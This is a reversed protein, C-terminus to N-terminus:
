NCGTEKYLYIDITRKNKGIFLYRNSRPEKLYTSILQDEAEKLLYILIKLDGEFLIVGKLFYIWLSM